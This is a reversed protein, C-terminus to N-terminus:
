QLKRANNEMVTLSVKDKSRQLLQTAEYHTMNRTDKGNINLIQDGASVEKRGRNVESVFLGVANGGIIRFGCGESPSCHLTVSRKM